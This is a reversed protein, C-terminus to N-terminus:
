HDDRQKSCQSDPYDFELERQGQHLVHREHEHQASPDEKLLVNDRHIGTLKQVNMRIEKLQEAKALRVLSLLSERLFYQEHASANKGLTAEVL